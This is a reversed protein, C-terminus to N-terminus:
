TTASRDAGVRQLVLTLDSCREHQLQTEARFISTVVTVQHGAPGVLSHAFVVPLIREPVMGDDDPLFLQTKGSKRWSNTRKGVLAVMKGLSFYGPLTARGTQSRCKLLLFGAL